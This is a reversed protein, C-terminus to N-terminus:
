APVAAPRGLLSRLAPELEPELWRFGSAELARPELRQGILVMEDVAPGIALRLVFGPAPVPLTPRRLVRGLTRTFERNTVQQPAVANVAGSIEATLLHELVRVEDDLTIWALHQRGSGLPAGLGARFIPLQRALAGGHEALVVGNRVRVVRAGADEAARTADEWQRSVEALFGEGAPCTEDCSRDGTDGYFNVGSMSVLVRTRDSAAVAQAVATTGDVRSRLVEARYRATWRRDAVGAGALHVVGDVDHLHAPDLRRAAPDWPREDAGSPTGRVLRVVDHGRARLHPVLASGLFGSAGTVAVKM